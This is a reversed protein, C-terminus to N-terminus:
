DEYKIEGKFKEIVYKDKYGGLRNINKLMDKYNIADIENFFVGKAQKKKTDADVALVKYMIM